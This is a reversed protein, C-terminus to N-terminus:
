LRQGLLRVVSSEGGMVCVCLLSNEVIYVDVSLM